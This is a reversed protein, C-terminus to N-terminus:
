AKILGRFYLVGILFLGTFFLFPVLRGFTYLLPYNLLVPPIATHFGEPIFLSPPYFLFLGFIIVGLIALIFKLM